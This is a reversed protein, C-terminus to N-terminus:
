EGLLTRKRDGIANDNQATLLTSARGSRAARRTRDSMVEAQVDAAARTPAATFTTPAAAQAANPDAAPATPPEIVPMKPKSFLASM